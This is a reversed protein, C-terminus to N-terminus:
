KLSSLGPQLWSYVFDAMGPFVTTLLGLLPGAGFAALKLWFDSGLSGADTNTVHSLTADKHMGAYVMSIVTAVGVFLGILSASLSTRPDFPYASVSLSAAIFLWFIQAVITRIRGLVNQIFGLYTLCVLEEVNRIFPNTPPPATKLPSENDSTGAIALILSEREQRWEPVLVCSLMIGSLKAVTEQFLTLDSLSSANTKCYNQSFWKAFKRGAKITAEVTQKIELTVLPSPPNKPNNIVADIHNLSELQRSILKYRVELVNGSMKWVSGWSFGRLAALTRRLSTRDLFTLLQRLNSWTQWLQWTDALLLCFYLNLWGWFVWAYFGSQGLSRIPANWSGQFVLITAFFGAYLSLMVILSKSSLPIAVAETPQGAKEWSFMQLVPLPTNKEDKVELDATSPLLSRDPGFLALGHLSNWFWLYLGFTLFLFPLLPSVGSVLNISRWHTPVQNALFLKSEVHFWLWGAGGALAVFLICGLFLQKYLRGRRRNTAQNLAHSSPLTDDPKSILERRTLYNLFISVGATVIVFLGALSVFVTARLSFLPSEFPNPEWRLPWGCGWCLLIACSAILSSGLAILVTHRLGRPNAFHARFAPKATLSASWCCAAHFVAAGVLLIFALKMSFPVKLAQTQDARFSVVANPVNPSALTREDLVAVPWFGNRGLVSLWTSPRCAITTNCTRAKADAIVEWFPRSYDPLLEGNSCIASPLFIDSTEDLLFFGRSAREELMAPSNLLFRSAVYTAEGLDDTFVRYSKSFPPRGTWDQGWALLPFTTLTMVGSIGGSGRERQFLLDSGLIVVRADPYNRRLFDTLFLQDLPNSSRLIVVQTRHARLVGVIGLLEAEQSLPTQEGGYSRVTDHEEGPSDALDTPLTSRPTSASQATTGSTFLSQKQYATRLASIDRPYFLQMADEICTKTGSPPHAVDSAQDQSLFFGYATEDESIVALREIVQSRPQPDLNYRLYECFRDLVTDDDQLFSHFSINLNKLDPSGYTRVFWAAADNDTASGSYIPLHQELTDRGALLYRKIYPDALLEALSPFSGSFTPGLIAIPPPTVGPGRLAEVWRVANQFQARHIGRTPDEGVVFIVLAEKYPQKAYPQETGRGKQSKRFLLIGPQDEREDKLDDARHQDDIFQFSQEDTEWPLWSSDYEYGEDQAGQQIAETIRDFLLPFHTHTPDPLTAIIFKLTGADRTLANPVAAPPASLHSYCEDPAAMDDTVFFAQILDELDSCARDVNSKPKEKRSTQKHVQAAVSEHRSRVSEVPQGSRSSIGMAAAMAVVLAGGWAAEQKM